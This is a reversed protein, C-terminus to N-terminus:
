IHSLNSSLSHIYLSSEEEAGSNANSRKGWQKICIHQLGYAAKGWKKPVWLIKM